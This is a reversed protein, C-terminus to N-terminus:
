VFPDVERLYFDEELTTSFVVRAQDATLVIPLM